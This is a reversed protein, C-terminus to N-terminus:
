FLRAVSPYLEYSLFAFVMVILAFRMSETAQAAAAEADAIRESRLTEARSFLTTRVKAGDENALTLAADLDTLERIGFREGLQGLAHWATTGSFRAGDIADQLHTFAWGSGIAASAPLAEAHGRGAQMSMAVLDLYVSLTRKFEARRKNASVTLEQRTVALMGAALVSGALPGLMVPLGLGIANFIGLIVVPGIFGVVALTTTKGIHQELSSGTVALDQTLGKIDRTRRVVQEAVWSQVKGGGGSAPALGIRQIRSARARSSDWRRVTSVLDTRAPLALWYGHLLAVAILGAAVMFGIM